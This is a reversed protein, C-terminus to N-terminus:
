ESRLPQPHLTGRSVKNLNSSPSFAEDGDGGGGGVAVVGVGVDVIVVVVEGNFVENVVVIVIVLALLVTEVFSTLMLMVLGILGEFPNFVIFRVVWGGCGVKPM